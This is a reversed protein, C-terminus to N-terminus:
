GRNELLFKLKKVARHLMVRVSIQSKGLIKAIEGISLDDVYRLLMAEQYDQKLKKILSMLQRAEFATETKQLLNEEAKIEEMEALPLEHTQSRSRYFDIVSNRAVKYILGSFSDIEKEAYEILYNWVKLFVTSTIDEAEEKVPIKFYVFRYIKEVYLDYLKGYADPDKKMRVKYVLLKEKLKGQMYSSPYILFTNCRYM